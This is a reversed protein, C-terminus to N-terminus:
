QYAKHLHYRSFFPLYPRFLRSTSVRLDANSLLTITIELFSLLNTVVVDYARLYFLIIQRKEFTQYYM